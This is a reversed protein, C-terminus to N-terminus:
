CVGGSVTGSGSVPSSPLWPPTQVRLLLVVDGDSALMRHLLRIHVEPLVLRPDTQIKRGFLWVFCLAGHSVATVLHWAAPVPPCHGQSVPFVLPSGWVASAWQGILTELDLCLSPPPCLSGLDPPTLLRPLQLLSPEVPCSDLCFEPGTM